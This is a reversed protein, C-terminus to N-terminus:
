LMPECESLSSAQKAGLKCTARNINSDREKQQLLRWNENCQHQCCLPKFDYVIALQQVWCLLYRSLWEGWYLGFDNIVALQLLQLAAQGLSVPLWMKATVGLAQMAVALGFTSAITPGGLIFKLSGRLQKRCPSLFRQFLLLM